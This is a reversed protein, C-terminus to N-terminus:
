ALPDFKLRPYIEVDFNFDVLQPILFRNITDAVQNAVAELAQLFMSQQSDGLSRSGSSTDGLELFQALINKAIERNHHKISEFM